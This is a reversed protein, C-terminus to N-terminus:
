RRPRRRPEVEVLAHGYCDIVRIAGIRRERQGRGYGLHTHGHLLIQPRFREALLTFAEFGQHVRDVPADSSSPLLPPAHTMLIDIGGALRIRWGLLSARLAVSRDSYEVGKGGYWRSGELGAIRLGRYNVVRLHVDQCGGPPRQGYAADHNGRVYYCPVNLRSVLYDLYGPDLDGCSAILDVGRWREPDFHEGLAREEVDAVALIKM